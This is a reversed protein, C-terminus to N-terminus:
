FVYSHFTSRLAPPRGGGLSRFELMVVIEHFFVDNFICDTSGVSLSWLCLGVLNTFQLEFFIM